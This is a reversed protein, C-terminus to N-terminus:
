NEYNTSKIELKQTKIKIKKVSERLINDKKMKKIKIVFNQNGKKQTKVELRLNPLNQEYNVKEDWFKSMKYQFISKSWMVSAIKM